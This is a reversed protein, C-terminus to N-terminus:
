EKEQSALVEAEQWAKSLLVAAQGAYSISEIREGAGGRGRAIAELDHLAGSVLNGLEGNLAQLGHVEAELEEIRKAQREIEDATRGISRADLEVSGKGGREQAARLWPVLNPNYESM